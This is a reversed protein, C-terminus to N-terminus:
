ESASREYYEREVDERDRGYKLRSLEEIQGALKMNGELPFGFQINFPRSPAGDILLKIYCNFNDISVIDAPSFVPQFQIKLKEADDPSIRFALLTGVNGFVAERVKDTLQAIFQHAMILDIHYKRGQALITALSDTSFDQFEDIYVFFDPAKKQDEPSLDARSFAALMLRSVMIMGILAVNLEGVIGKPLKVLLIKKEDMMKRFDFASKQQTIIPRMYDNGLFPAFKSTIYASMNSLSWDGQAQEAEFKWFRKIDPNKERSLKAERYAEDAFVRGVEAITPIENEYDDLLLMLAYRFYKEFLPGFGEPQDKYVAKLIKYFEDIVDTKQTPKAPDITLFNLGMPHAVDSPDFVIVDDAREKPVYSLAADVLDGNPDLVAIGHGAAIDQRIMHKLLTSKGTGTQGIIYMHRRRDEGHIRVLTEQGRYVNTGLIVGAEPLDRPPEAPKAKLFRVRPTATTPLPFHYFSAIEETGLFMAYQENFIRFSYDRMFADRAKGKMAVAHFANFDPAEFQVFASQMDRLIEEAKMETPASAVLRVNVDFAPKSFKNAVAKILEQHHPLVQRPEERKEGSTEVLPNVARNIEQLVETGFSSGVKHLAEKWSVGKQLEKLIRSSEKAYHKKHSPRILVQFAAGEGERSLKSMATLIDGLPDAPLMQYTRFPLVQYGKLIMYAGVSIGAPNFINYDTAPAIEATPYFSHIQKEILESYANPTAVYFSIEEGIHHVGIEFVVYPEGYLFKKWGKSHLSSMSSLMQETVAILDKEQKQQQEGSQGGRESFERAVRVSFLTMNLGRALAGRARFRSLM